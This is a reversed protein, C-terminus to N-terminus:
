SGKGPSFGVLVAAEDAPDAMFGVELLGFLASTEVFEVEFCFCVFFEGLFKEEFVLVFLAAEVFLVGVEVDVVEVVVVVRLGQAEM